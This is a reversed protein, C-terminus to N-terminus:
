RFPAPDGKGLRVVEPAEGTLDVVTTPESSCIGGDVILDLAHELRDRIIEPDTLAFEDGPLILSSTMLPSGFEQLLSRAVPHDPVRLGITKRKADQLRRPVERTAPLLFAYPGPTTAKLLRFTPTGFRAYTGAESLDALLLTFRHDPDLGRIRCIRELGAKNAMATGLAYCSDTPYAIVGGRRLVEAVRAVLRPQPTQPHISLFEGM